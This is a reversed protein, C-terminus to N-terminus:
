RTAQEWLRLMQKAESITKAYGIPVRAKTVPDIPWVKWTGSFRNFYIGPVDSKRPPHRRYAAEKRKLYIRKKAIDDHIASNKNYADAWNARILVNERNKLQIAPLFELVEFRLASLGFANYDNQLEPVDHRGRRLRSLHDRMRLCLDTSSGFYSRGTGVLYLRYTGSSGKPPLEGNYKKSKILARFQSRIGLRTLRTHLTKRKLQLKTAAQDYAHSEAAAALITEISHQPPKGM